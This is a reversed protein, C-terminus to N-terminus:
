VIDLASTDAYMGRTPTNVRQTSWLYLLAEDRTSSSSSPVSWWHRQYESNIILLRPAKAVSWVGDGHALARLALEDDGCKESLKGLMEDNGDGVIALAVKGLVNFCLAFFLSHFPTGLCDMMVDLTAVDANVLLADACTTCNVFSPNFVAVSISVTSRKSVYDVLSM